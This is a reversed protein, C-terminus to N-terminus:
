MGQLPRRLLRLPVRSSHLQINNSEKLWEKSFAYVIKLTPTEDDLKGVRIEALLNQVVEQKVEFTVKQVRDKLATLIAQVDALKRRQEDESVRAEELEEIRRQILKRDSAVDALAGDLAEKSYNGSPDGYLRLLRREAETLEDLRHRAEAIEAIWTAQECANFKDEFARRIVEPKQIFESIQQWVLDEVLCAPITPAECRKSLLNGRNGNRNCRYYRLEGNHTTRSYSGTYSHGCLDCRILGRLLYERRRNRDAWLNNNKLKMQAQEYTSKDIIAPCEAEILQKKSGRKGYLWKGEYATNRLMNYVRGPRWLGSTAKGRIGRGDKAYRTPIGFANLRQAIAYCSLGDEVLWRFMNRVVKAEQEDIELKKTDPNLRYGYAVIGGAYFGKEVAKRLGDRSREIFTNREWEAFTSAM